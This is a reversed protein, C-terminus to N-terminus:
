RRGRAVLIAGTLMLGVVLSVLVAASAGYSRDGFGYNARAIWIGVVRLAGHPGGGGTISDIRETEAFTLAFKFLGFSLVDRWNPMLYVDRVVAVTGGGDLRVQEVYGRTRKELVMWFWMSAVGIWQWLDAIVVVVFARSPTALVGSSLDAGILRLIARGAGLDSDVFVAVFLAASVAPIFFPIAAQSRLVVGLRSGRIFIASVFGASTTLLTAMLAYAGTIAVSARFSEDGLLRVYNSVGNIKQDTLSAAVLWLLPVLSVAATPILVGVALLKHHRVAEGAISV